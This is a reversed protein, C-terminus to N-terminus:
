EESRGHEGKYEERIVGNRELYPEYSGFGFITYLHDIFGDKVQQCLDRYDKNPLFSLEMTIMNDAHTIAEKIKKESFNRGLRKM